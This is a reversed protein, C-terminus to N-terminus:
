FFSESIYIALYSDIQSSSIKRAAALFVIWTLVFTCVVAFPGHATTVFSVFDHGISVGAYTVYNRKRQIVEIDCYQLYLHTRDPSGCMNPLCSTDCYGLITCICRLCYISSDVLICVWCPFDLTRHDPM